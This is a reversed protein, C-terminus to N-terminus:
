IVALNAIANMAAKRKAVQERLAAAQSTNGDTRALRNLDNQLAAVERNILAVQSASIRQEAQLERIRTNAASLALREGEVEASVMASNSELNAIRADFQRQNSCIGSTLVNGVRNPDCDEATVCASLLTLALLGSVRTTIMIANIGKM